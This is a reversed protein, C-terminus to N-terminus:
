SLQINQFMFKLSLGFNEDRHNLIIYDESCDYLQLRCHVEIFGCFCGGSNNQLFYTRSFKAFKVPFCRRRLRKKIFNYALLGAKNFLSELVLTERHFKRFKKSCRNQLADAICKKSVLMHFKFLM